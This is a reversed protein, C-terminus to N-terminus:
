TKVHTKLDVSRTYSRLMRFWRTWLTILAVFHMQTIRLGQYQGGDSVAAMDAEDTERNPLIPVLDYLSAESSHTSGQSVRLAVPWTVEMVRCQFRLFAM